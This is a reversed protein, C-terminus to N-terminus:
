TFAIIVKNLETFYHLSEHLVAPLVTAVEIELTEHKDNPLREEPSSPAYDSYGSGEPSPIRKRNHDSLEDASDFESEWDSQEM